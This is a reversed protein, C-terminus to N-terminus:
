EIVILNYSIQKSKVKTKKNIKKLNQNTERSTLGGILKPSIYLKDINRNLLNYNSLKTLLFRKFNDIITISLYNMVKPPKNINEKNIILKKFINLILDASDIKTINLEKKININNNNKKLKLWKYFDNKHKIKFSIRDLFKKKFPNNKAQIYGVKKKLFYAQMSTTCGRHLLGESAYIWSHIDDIPKRFIIKKSLEKNWINVNESPHCRVVLKINKNTEAITNLLNIVRKFDNYNETALKNDNTFRKEYNKAYGWYKHDNLIKKYNLSIYTFDSSFLIFKKYKKKINMIKEKYISQYKKKFLDIRPWGTLFVKGRIKKELFKKAINFVKKNVCFYGDIYKLTQPFFRGICNEKYTKLNHGPAIEHDLFFNYNVKDKIQFFTKPDIGGHYFFIGGCDKKNKLLNFIQFQSGLYVRYGKTAAKYAFLVHALYERNKIEVAIYISKKESM